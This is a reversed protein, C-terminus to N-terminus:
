TTQETTHIRRTIDESWNVAVAAIQRLEGALAALDSEALAEYFEESLIERWTLTGSAAARDCARRARTAAAKFHPAGTGDPHSQADWRVEQRAREGALAALLQGTMAERPHPCPDTLLAAIVPGLPSTDDSALKVAFTHLFNQEALKGSLDEVQEALGAVDCPWVEECASCVTVDRPGACGPECPGPAHKCPETLQWPKHYRRLEAPSMVLESGMGGM